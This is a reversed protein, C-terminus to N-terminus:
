RLERANKCDFKCCVERKIQALRLVPEPFPKGHIFEAFALLAESDPPGQALLESIRQQVVPRDLKRRTVRATLLSLSRSVV